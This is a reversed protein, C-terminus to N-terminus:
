VRGFKLEQRLSHVVLVQRPAEDDFAFQGPNELVDLDLREVDGLEGNPRAFAGVARLERFPIGDEGFDDDAVGEANVANVVEQAVGVVGADSIPTEVMVPKQVCESDQGTVVDAGLFRGQADHDAADVGGLRQQQGAVEHVRLKVEVRNTADVVDVQLIEELSPQRAPHKGGVQLLVEAQGVVLDVSGDEGCRVVRSLGAVGMRAVNGLVVMEVEDVRSIRPIEFLIGSRSLGDEIGCDLLESGFPEAEVVVALAVARGDERNVGVISPHETRQFNGFDDALNRSHFRLENENM